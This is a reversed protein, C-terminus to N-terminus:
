VQIKLTNIILKQNTNEHHKKHKGHNGSVMQLSVFNKATKCTKQRLIWWKLVSNKGLNQMVISPHPYLGFFTLSVNPVNTRGLTGEARQM